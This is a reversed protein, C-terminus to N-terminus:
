IIYIYLYICPNYRRKYRPKHAFMGKEDHELFLLQKFFSHTKEITLDGNKTHCGNGVQLERQLSEIGDTQEQLV